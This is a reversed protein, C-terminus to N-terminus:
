QNIKDVIAQHESNNLYEKPLYNDYDKEIYEYKLKLIKRVSEDIREEDFKGDEIAQKVSKLCQRSSSPMLLIDVGAEVAKACIEDKSYYNTLAGMNLGDTVILGDFKLENRLYDTVVKKSLSAPTEDGTLKPVALHGVMIMKANNKIAEKFPYVDVEDLEEKTLDLVPLSFHSDTATNGHGPFHKYVSLVGNEELGNSLAIGHKVVLEKDSGFSRRGIVQNNPNSYVDLVPAFDLNIGFVRLEEALLKGVSKTLELDNKEGVSYMYPVDTAKVDLLAKLRQVIGGEEDISIFMPIDATEKIEKILKLTNEYTTINEKFLIFGGPKVEELASKLTSDMVEKEYFVIMMQGIKEDLSMNELEYEVREDITMKGKEEKSKDEKKSNCGVFMIAVIFLILISKKM